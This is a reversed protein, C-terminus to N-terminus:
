ELEHWFLPTKEKVLVVQVYSSNTKPQVVRTKVTRGSQVKEKKEKTTKKKKKFFPSLM